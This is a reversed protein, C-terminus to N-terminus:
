LQQASSLVGRKGRPDGGGLISVKFGMRCAGGKKGVGKGYLFRVLEFDLAEFGEHGPWGKIGCPDGWGM